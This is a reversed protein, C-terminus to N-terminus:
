AGRADHLGDPGVPRELWGHEAARHLDIRSIGRRTAERTAFYGLRREAELAVLPVSSVAM